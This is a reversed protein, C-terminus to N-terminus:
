PLRVCGMIQRQTILGLTYSDLSALPNDGLAIYSNQPIVFQYHQLQKKLLSDESARLAYTLDAVKLERQQIEVQDGPMAVIRKVLPHKRKHLAILVLTDRNIQDADICESDVAIRDGTKLTPLM